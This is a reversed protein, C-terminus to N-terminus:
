AQWSKSAASPSVNIRAMIIDGLNGRVAKEIISGSKENDGFIGGNCSAMIGRGIVM